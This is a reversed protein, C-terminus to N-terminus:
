KAEGWTKGFGGEVEVPVTQLLVRGAWTMAGVLRRVGEEAKEEPILAVLEDYVNLLVRGGLPELLEQAGVMALKTIEANSAQIVFNGAQNRLEVEEAPSLPGPPFKRVRGWPDRITRTRAAEDRWGEITEWALSYAQRWSQVIERAEELSLVIGGEAAVQVLRKPGGGYLTLFTVAKGIRRERDGWNPGFLLRATVGHLDEGERFARVMEPDQSLEAMIRLEMQSYDAALVAFGEPARVLNRFPKTAPLQLLNPDSSTPRGTVTGLSRLDPRLVGDEWIAQLWTEGFATEQKRKERYRLLPLAYTKALDPPLLSLAGSSVSELELGLERFAWLVQEPSDPNFPDPPKPKPPRPNVEKWARLERDLFRALGMPVGGYKKSPRPDSFEEPREREWYSRLFAEEDALAREWAEYAEKEREYRRVKEAMALPGLLECVERRLVKAEERITELLRLLGERDFPIGSCRMRLFVPLALRELEWVKWLGERRLLEEQVSLLPLLIRADEAAYEKQEASVPEGERFSTQLTKDLKKGLRREVTEALGLGEELGGLLLREAVLTDLIRTPIPLSFTLCLWFLDFLANHCVLEEGWLSRLRDPLSPDSAEWVEVSGNPFALAVLVLQDRRAELGTTEIDLGIRM